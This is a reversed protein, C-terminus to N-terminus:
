APRDRGPLDLRREPRRPRRRRGRLRRLSRARTVPSQPTSIPSPSFAERAGRSTGAPRLAPSPSAGRSSPPSRGSARFTPRSPARRQGDEVPDEDVAEVSGRPDPLNARPSRESGSRRGSVTSPEGGRHPPRPPRAEPRRSSRGHWPDRRGLRSRTERRGRSLEDGEVVRLQLVLRDHDRDGTRPARVAVVLRGDQLLDVAPIAAFPSATTESDYSYVSSASRLKRCIARNRSRCPTM